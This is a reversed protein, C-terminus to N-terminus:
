LFITRDFKATPSVHHGRTAQAKQGSQESSFVPAANPNNWDAVIKAIMAITIAMAIM